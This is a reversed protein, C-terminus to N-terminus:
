WYAAFYTNGFSHGVPRTGLYQFIDYRSLLREVDKPYNFINVGTTAIGCVELVWKGVVGASKEAFWFM